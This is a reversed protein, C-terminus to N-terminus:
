KKPIFQFCPEEFITWRIDGQITIPEHPNEKNYAEEVLQKIEKKM